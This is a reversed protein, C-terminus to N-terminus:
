RRKGPVTEAPVPKLRIEFLRPWLKGTVFLRRTREDYAIGNLVGGHSAEDQSLTELAIWAVVRGSAADIRAIRGQGLVNAYVEGGVYELENLNSVPRGGDTVPLRGIEAYSLPDLYYLTASGDSMILREGDYTLGWGERPYSFSRILEFSEREYVFGTRSRWTLMVVRDDYVAIGEGFLNDPLKVLKLVGGSELEVERLTSLGWRGTSEYLVGGAFVLGQTFADSDHPYVNLVEYGQLPARAAHAVDDTSASVRSRADCGTM